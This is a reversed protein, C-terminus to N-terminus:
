IKDRSFRKRITEESQSKKGLQFLNCIDAILKYDPRLGQKQFLEKMHHCFRILAKEKPKTTAGSWSRYKGDALSMKHHAIAYEKIYPNGDNGKNFFSSMRLENPLEKFECELTSEIKDIQRSIKKGANKKLIKTNMKEKQFEELMNKHNEAFAISHAVSRPQYRYKEFDSGREIHLTMIPIKEMLGYRKLRRIVKSRDDMLISVIEKIRDNAYFYTM